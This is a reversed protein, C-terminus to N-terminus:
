SWEVHYGDGNIAAEARPEGAEEERVKIQLLPSSTVGCYQTFGVGHVWWCGVMYGCVGGHFGGVGRWWGVGVHFLGLLPIFHNM